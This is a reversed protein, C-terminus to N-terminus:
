LAQCSVPWCYRDKAGTTLQLKINDGCDTAAGDPSHLHLSFAPM